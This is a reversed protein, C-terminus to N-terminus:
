PKEQQVNLKCLMKYRDVDFDIGPLLHAWALRMERENDLDDFRIVEVQYRACIQSILHVRDAWWKDTVTIEPEALKKFSALSDNGDRIVVLWPATPFYNAVETFQLCLQPGSFGVIKDNDPIAEFSFACDHHCITRDTTFLNALWATRSRPLGTIIFPKKM